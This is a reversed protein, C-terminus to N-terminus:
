LMEVMIKDNREEISKPYYVRCNKFESHTFIMYGMDPHNNHFLIQIYLGGVSSPKLKTPKVIMYDNKDWLDFILYEKDPKMGALSNIKKLGIM